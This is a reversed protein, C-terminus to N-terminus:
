NIFFLINMFIFVNVHIKINFKNRANFGIIIVCDDFQKNILYIM